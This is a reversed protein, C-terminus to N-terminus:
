KIIVHTHKDMMHDSDLGFKRNKLNENESSDHMHQLMDPLDEVPLKFFLEHGKMLMCRSVYLFYVTDVAAQRNADYYQVCHHGHYLYTNTDQHKCLLGITLDEYTNAPDKGFTELSTGLKLMLLTDFQLIPFMLFPM